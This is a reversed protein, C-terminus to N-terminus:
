SHLVRKRGLASSRSVKSSCSTRKVLPKAKDVGPITSILVQHTNRTDNEEVQFYIYVFYFVYFLQLDFILIHVLKHSLHSEIKLAEEWIWCFALIAPKIAPSMCTSASYLVNNRSELCSCAHSQGVIEGVWSM